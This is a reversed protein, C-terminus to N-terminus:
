KGSKAPKKEEKDSAKKEEKDAPRKEEKDSAKAGDDSAIKLTAPEPVALKAIAAPDEVWFDKGFEPNAKAIRIKNEDATEVIYDRFQLVGYDDQKVVTGPGFPNPGRHSETCSLTYDPYRSRFRTPVPEATTM